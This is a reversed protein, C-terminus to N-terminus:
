RSFKLYISCVDQITEEIPKFEFGLTDKIKQSSFASVSFASRATQSSLKPTSRTILGKLWDLRWALSLMVRTAKISPKAQGLKLTLQDFIEKFGANVANVVYREGNINSTMLKLMVEVVDRVDVFGTAGTTYFKMGKAATNVISASGKSWDGPGLIVSPNVIVANLGETIGRWVELESHFKSLSYGSHQQAHNRQSKEDILQNELTPSGLAAISSVHCFKAVKNEISLDVMNATGRINNRMMTNHDKTAFSVMAAAHYVHEVGAFAPLLSNYDLLDAEVWEIKSLDIENNKDYFSVIQELQL